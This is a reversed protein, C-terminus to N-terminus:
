CVDGEKNNLIEYINFKVPYEPNQAVVQAGRQNDSNIIIPAKLNATMKTLDSPVTIIVFMAVNEETLEGVEKISDDTVCPDYDRDVMLPNIMPLALTPEEVSQLWFIHGETDKDNNYLITYTKFEEFGFIGNEFRIIKEEGINIEGFCRTNIIM